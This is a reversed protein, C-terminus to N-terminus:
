LNIYVKNIFVQYLVSGLTVALFLFTVIKIITVPNIKINKM